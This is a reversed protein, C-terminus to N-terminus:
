KTCTRKVLQLTIEYSEEDSSFLKKALHFNKILLQGSSEQEILLLVKKLEKEDLFIPNKQQVDVEEFVANAQMPGESFQLRNEEAKAGLFTLTELHTELFNKESKRLKSLFAEEEKQECSMKTSLEELTELRNRCENLHQMKLFFLAIFVLFPLPATFFLLRPLFDKSIYASLKM